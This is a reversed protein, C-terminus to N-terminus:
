SNVRCASDDSLEHLRRRRIRELAQEIRDLEGPEPSAIGREIISLRGSSMNAEIAVELGSARLM